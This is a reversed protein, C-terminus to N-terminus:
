GVLINDFLDPTNQQAQVVCNGIPSTSGQFTNGLYKALSTNRAEICKANPNAVKLYCNIIENPQFQVGLNASTFTQMTVCHGASNNWQCDMNVGVFINGGAFGANSSGGVVAATTSILTGGYFRSCTGPFAGTLFGGSGIANSASSYAFLNYFTVDEHRVANSATSIAILNVIRGTLSRYFGAGFGATSIGICNEYTGGVENAIGAFSGIGICNRAIGGSIIGYTGVGISSYIASTGAVIGYVAEAYVNYAIGSTANQFGGGNSLFGRISGGIWTGANQVVTSQSLSEFYCNTTIRSSANQIFILTASTVTSTSKISGNMITCTVAANNDLMAYTPWTITYTFGNLNINVGNKLVIAVPNREVIDAFQVITEGNKANALATRYDAYYTFNGDANAIGLVGINGPNNYGLQQTAM